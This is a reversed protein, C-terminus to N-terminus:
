AAGDLPLLLQAVPRFSRRHIPCPGLAALARLHSPTPYGKHAAFGYGPYVSDYHRMLADRVVKAVVSAASIEVHHGDGGVIARAPAPLPPLRNGDVLILDARRGLARYAASMARLTAGLINWTDVAEQDAIGLGVAPARELILELAAERGQPTMRKSDTVGPLRSGEQLLVAAVVVPGALPGRGAEDIGVIWRASM